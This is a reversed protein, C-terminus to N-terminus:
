VCGGVFNTKHTKYGDLLKEIKIMLDEDDIYFLQNGLDLNSILQGLRWEPVRDRWLEGIHRTLKTCRKPDRM